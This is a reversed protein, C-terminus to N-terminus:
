ARAPGLDPRSAWLRALIRIRRAAKPVAQLAKGHDFAPAAPRSPWSPLSGTDRPPLRCAKVGAM